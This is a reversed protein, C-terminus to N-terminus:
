RNKFSSNAFDIRAFGIRHTRLCKMTHELIWRFHIRENLAGQGQYITRANWIDILLVNIESCQAQFRHALHVQGLTNFKSM